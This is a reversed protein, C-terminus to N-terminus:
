FQGGIMLGRQSVNLTVKSSASPAPDNRSTLLLYVGVGVCAMGTITLVTSTDASSLADDKTSCEPNTDPCKKDFARVGFYGALGLQVLGASGLAWGVTQRVHGRPSGADAATAPVPAPVLASPASSSSAVPSITVTTPDDALVPIEINKADSENGIVIGATFSRKGPATARVVHEGGDVPMATSWAGRGLERGDREIRLGKVEAASSVIVTLRSLRPALALAHDGAAVERDRRGDRRALAAADNFESWSRALRGEQEHCLALNLLTGGSPDLRQSEELKPCADAIRGASMLSRGEQFLVTALAKDDATPEAQARAAAGSLVAFLIGGITAFRRTWRAREVTELM